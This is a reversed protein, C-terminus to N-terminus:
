LHTLYGSYTNANMGTGNLGSQAMFEPVANRIISEELRFECRLLYNADDVCERILMSPFYPIMSTFHYWPSSPFVEYDDTASPRSRIQM